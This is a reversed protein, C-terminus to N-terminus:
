NESTYYKRISGNNSQEICISMVPMKHSRELLEEPAAPSPPQLTARPRVHKAEQPSPWEKTTVQLFLHAYIFIHASIIHTFIYDYLYTSIYIYIYTYIYIYKNIYTYIYIHLYLFIHLMYIYIHKCVCIPTFLPEIIRSSSSFMM